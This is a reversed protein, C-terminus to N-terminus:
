LMLLVTGEPETPILKEEPFLFRMSESIAGPAIALERKNIKACEIMDDLLIKGANATDEPVAGIQIITTRKKLTDYDYVVFSLIVLNAKLILKSYEDFVRKKGNRGSPSNRCINNFEELKQEAEKFAIPDEHYAVIKIIRIQGDIKTIRIRGDLIDPLSACGFCKQQAELVANKETSMMWRSRLEIDNKEM